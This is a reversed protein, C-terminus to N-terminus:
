SCSGSEGGLRPPCMWTWQSTYTPSPMSMMSTPYTAKLVSSKTPTVKVENKLFFTFCLQGITNCVIPWGLSFLLGKTVDDTNEGVISAHSFVLTLFSLGCAVSERPSSLVGGVVCFVSPFEEEERSM